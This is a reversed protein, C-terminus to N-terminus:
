SSSTHRLILIWDGEGPPEVTTCTESIKKEKSKEGTRPNVWVARVPRKLGALNLRLEQRVPTYIVALEGDLSRSAAIFREVKELGPQETLLGPDPQLLWWPLETFIQKLRGMDEAGPLRMAEWWPRAVGANPHAFPTESKEAWYWVGNTGYSVGATPAILLSWYAARRVMHPTIPKLIRYALHMEYNPELNIFPRPPKLMWDRSPPGFCLWRLDEEDVGHGSQYGVIDFWEEGIFEQLVWHRGAPHMTVPQRRKGQFLARGIRRWREAKEGRYDGDGALIWVVVYAGYRAVLYRALLLADEDSLRYGPSIEDSIAWLLVPAAVFGYENLMSFKPDIRRFFGVNLRKIRKDGEYAREGLRDYPGGRWHTLVFQIVTFGQRRRFSLYERWEDLTSKIVGNWATDALWFFPTGDEHILYRRDDSLRLPGHRYVPNDGDYSVVKFSGRRGHLGKDCENSCVTRYTWTGEEDPMFRVRWEDGGDWFADIVTEGDSPSDFVCRVSVDRLPDEYRGKSRFIAEFVGWKHVPKVQFM